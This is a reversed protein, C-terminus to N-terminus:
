IHCLSSVPRSRRGNAPGTRRVAAYAPLHYEARQGRTEAVEAATLKQGALHDGLLLDVAARVMQSVYHSHVMVRMQEYVGGAQAPVFMQETM